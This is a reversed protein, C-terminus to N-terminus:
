GPRVGRTLVIRSASRAWDYLMEVATPPVAPCRRRLLAVAEDVEHYKLWDALGERDLRYRDVVDRGVCRGLREIQLREWPTIGDPPVVVELDSSVWVPPMPLGDARAWRRGDATAAFVGPGLRVVGLRELRKLLRGLMPAEILDFGDRDFPRGDDGPYTPPGERRWPSFLLDRHQEYVLDVFVVEDIAEEGAQRLAARVAPVAAHLDTDVLRHVLRDVAVETDGLLVGELGLDLAIERTVPDASVVALAELARLARGWRPDGEIRGGTFAVGLRDAVRRGDAAGIPGAFTRKPRVLDLVAALSALDHLLGIPGQDRPPALDDPAPMVADDFAYAVDPPPPLAPNLLLRADGDEAPREVLGLGLLERLPGADTVPDWAGHAVVMPGIAHRQAATLVARARTSLHRVRDAVTEDVDHDGRARTAYRVLVPLGRARLAALGDREFAVTAVRRTPSLVEGTHLELPIVGGLEAWLAPDAVELESRVVARM